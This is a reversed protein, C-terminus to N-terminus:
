SQGNIGFSASLEKEAQELIEEGSQSETVIKFTVAGQSFGEIDVTFFIEAIDGIYKGGYNISTATYTAELSKLSPTSSSGIEDIKEKTYFEKVVTFSM